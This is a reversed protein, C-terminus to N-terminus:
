RSLASASPNLLTPSKSSPFRILFFIPAGLQKAAAWYRKTGARYRKADARVTKYGGPLLLAKLINLLQAACDASSARRPRVPCGVAKVCWFPFAAEIANEVEEQAAPSTM